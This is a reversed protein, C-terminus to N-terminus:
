SSHFWVNAHKRTEHAHASRFSQVGQLRLPGNSRASDISPSVTGGAAQSRASSLATTKVLPAFSLDHRIWSDVVLAEKVLRRLRRPCAILEAFVHAIGFKDLVQLGIASKHLAHHKKGPVYEGDQYQESIKKHLPNCRAQRFYKAGKLRQL